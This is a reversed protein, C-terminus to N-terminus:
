TDAVTFLFRIQLWIFIFAFIITQFTSFFKSMFPVHLTMNVGNVLFTFLKRAVQAIVLRDMFVKEVIMDFSHMLPDFPEM